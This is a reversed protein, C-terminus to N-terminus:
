RHNRPTPLTATAPFPVRIRRKLSHVAKVRIRQGAPRPIWRSRDRRGEPRRESRLRPVRPVVGMVRDAHRCRHKWRSLGISRPGGGREDCRRKLAASIFEPGNDGRVHAPAGGIATREDLATVIDEGGFNRKTRQVEVTLCELTHEDRVLLMRFPRGDASRDRVFDLDRLDKKRRAPRRTIGNRGTKATWLEGPARLQGEAVERSM